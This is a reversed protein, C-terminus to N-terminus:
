ILRPSGLFLGVAFLGGFVFVLRATAGLVSNLARGEQISLARILKVGLPLSLLPLLCWPSQDFFLVLLAPVLYSALLSIAYQAFAARRGFRVALTKKRAIRDTHRDRLNNVVLINTCLAGIPVACALALLSFDGTQVFCSGVVAVLGFFLFVFVDGWGHYGLPYPGGTYAIAALIGSLGIVVIPWGAVSTLYSGVALGLLIVYFLGRKMQRVSLLGAQCARTPGLREQTDAGKEYDFVDNAFNSAIQLLGAGMLTAAFPGAQIAVSHHAVATGVLVPAVAATLTAPRSALLWARASGQAVAPAPAPLAPTATDNALM